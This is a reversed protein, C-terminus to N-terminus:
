SARGTAFAWTSSSRRGRLRPCAHGLGGGVGLGAPAALARAFHDRATAALLAKQRATLAGWVPAGLLRRVIADADLSEFFIKQPGHLAALASRRAFDAAEEADPLTTEQGALAAAALLMLLALLRSWARGSRRGTPTGSPSLTLLGHRDREHAPKSFIKMVMPVSGIRLEDGDRLAIPQSLKIGNVFTGNKSGLDELTALGM